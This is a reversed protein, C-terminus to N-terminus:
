GSVAHGGLVSLLLHSPHDADRYITQLAAIPPGPEGGRNTNRDFRPFDASCVDLRLHHGEKFRNATAWMDIELRYIRDPELLEPMQACDRYRARLMGSQLQIARGDPFVDSLRASFDTDVTSSSAYLVLRVPGVVDLSTELPLTTYTVVDPRKQVDDIDVSGPRYVNSVISGGVTPTPHNPDYTYSDSTADQQPRHSTLAGGPALYLALTEADHPPWTSAAHWENAGMLYYIATPWAGLASEQMADYWRLLLDVINPLRYVRNLEPHNESGEHYGPVNHASPAILLRSRRRTSAPATQVLLDWTALTDRLNWDYWGAIVLAPARLSQILEHTGVRPFLFLGIPISHGFIDPLAEISALTVTDENLALKILETREAPGLTTYHEWLWRKGAASPLSRLNPYRELVADRLPVELPANFYGSALTEDLMMRELESYPVAVKESGKGVSRSYANVFMHPRPMDSPTVVLGAVEPAIATMQPHMAMAWQTSGSYSGGCAGLFGNFWEQRTAWEVFDASDEWEYVYCDWQDPESEGTGRCDQAVTIYGRRAFATFTEARQTRGYPTRIAIAPAPISPPLYLDTALRVGDRMSVWVTERRIESDSFRSAPGTAGGGLTLIRELEPAVATLKM